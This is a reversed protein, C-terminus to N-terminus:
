IVGVGPRRWKTEVRGRTLLAGGIRGCALRFSTERTHGKRMQCNVVKTYVAAYSPFPPPPPGCRTDGRFHTAGSNM